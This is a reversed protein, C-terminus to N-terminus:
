SIIWTILSSSVKELKFKFETEWSSGFKAEYPNPCSRYDTDKARDERTVKEKALTVMKMMKKKGIGDISDIREQPLDCLTGLKLIGASSLKEKIKKGVGKLKNM